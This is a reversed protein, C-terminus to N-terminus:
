RHSAESDSSEESEEDLILDAPPIGDFLSQILVTHHEYLAYLVTEILSQVEIKPLARGIFVTGTRVRVAGTEWDLEWNGILMNQNIRMMLESASARLTSVIVLPHYAVMMWQGSQEHIGIAVRVRGVETNGLAVLMWEHEQDDILDFEFGIEELVELSHRVTQMFAFQQNIAIADDHDM